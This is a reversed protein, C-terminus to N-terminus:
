LIGIVLTLWDEANTIPQLRQINEARSRQNLVDFRGDVVGRSSGYGLRMGYDDLRFRQEGLNDTRTVSGM